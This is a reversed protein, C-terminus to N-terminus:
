QKVAASTPGKGVDAYNLELLHWGYAGKSQLQGSTLAENVRDILGESDTRIMLNSDRGTDIKQVTKLTPTTASDLYREVVTPGMVNYDGLAADTKGKHVSDLVRAPSNYEITVLGREQAYKAGLTGKQVAVTKGKAAKKLSSVGSGANTMLVLDNGVYPASRTLKPNAPENANPVGAGIDCKDMADGSLLSKKSVKVTKVPAEFRDDGHGPVLKTSLYTFIRAEPNIDNKGKSSADCVTLHKPNVLDYPNNDTSSSTAASAPTFATAALAAAALLASAATTRRTSNRM